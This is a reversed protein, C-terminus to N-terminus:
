IFSVQRFLLLPGNKAAGVTQRVSTIEYAADGTTQRLWWWLRRAAGRLSAIHSM